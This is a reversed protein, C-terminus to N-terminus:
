QTEGVGLNDGKGRSRGSMDGDKERSKSWNSGGRSQASLRALEGKRFLGGSLESPHRRSAEMENRVTPGTLTSRPQLKTM